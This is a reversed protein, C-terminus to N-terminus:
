IENLINTLTDHYTNYSTETDHTDLLTNWDTNKLKENIKSINTTNLRRSQIKMPQKKYLDINTMEIMTPCHDSIDSLIIMPTYASQHNRGIIINDILTASTKTIRTPKTITPILEHELNLEIFDKTPKHRDSKMLDLNHDLGIILKREEDTSFKSIWRKYNKLFDTEKCNPPRYLSSAIISTSHIKIEVTINEFGPINLILDKRERFQLRTSILIGVGGGKKHKRHSSVFKYGPIKVKGETSKKFWTEQLLVIQSDLHKNTERLCNALERQKGLIGRINIQLVTLNKSSLSTKDGIDVYDCNDILEDCYGLQQDGLNPTPSPLVHVCM